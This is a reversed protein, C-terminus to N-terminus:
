ENQWDAILGPHRLNLYSKKTFIYNYGLFLLWNKYSFLDMTNYIVTKKQCIVHTFVIM